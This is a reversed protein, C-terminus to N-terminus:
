AYRPDIRVERRSILGERNFTHFPDIVCFGKLRSDKAGPFTFGIGYRKRWYDLYEQEYPREGSDLIVMANDAFHEFFFPLTNWREWKPRKKYVPAVPPGDILLLNVPGPVDNASLEYMGTLDDLERHLVTVRHDVDYDCVAGATREWVWELHEVAVHQKEVDKGFVVTSGGSGFEWTYDLLGYTKMARLLNRLFKVREVRLKFTGFHKYDIDRMSVRKYDDLGAEILKLLVRNTIPAEQIQLDFKPVSFGM